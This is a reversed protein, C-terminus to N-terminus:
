SSNRLDLKGLYTWLAVASSIVITGVMMLPVIAEANGQRLELMMNAVISTGMLVSFMLWPATFFYGLTKRKWLLIGTLIMGPLVLALDIVQIPNVWLGAMQASRPTDGSVLSPIVESLWLLNFLSGTLILVLGPLRESKSALYPAIRSFRQTLSGIFLYVSLGLIAVYVLFLFNFHVFFAYVTYAYIFYLLVGLWLLYAKTSSKTVFYTAILLVFCAILNGIDQGMAQLAWNQTEQSYTSTIFIGSLSAVLTLVSILVSTVVLWKSSGPM